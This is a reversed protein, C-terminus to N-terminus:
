TCQQLNDNLVWLDYEWEEDVSSHSGNCKAQSSSLKSISDNM